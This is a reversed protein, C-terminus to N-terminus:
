NPGFNVVRGERILFYYEGYFWPDDTFYVWKIMGNDLVEARYPEGWTYLVDEASM